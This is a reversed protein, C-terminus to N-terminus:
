FVGNQIKQFFELLLPIYFAISIMVLMYFVISIITFFSNLGGKKRCISQLVVSDSNSNKHVINDVRKRALNLYFDNFRFSFYLRIVFIGLFFYKNIYNSLFCVILSLIFDIVSYLYMRRSLGYLPGFFFYFLSFRRYVFKPYKDGIYSRVLVETSIGNLNNRKEEKLKITVGTKLFTGCRMCFNSENKLECGCSICKM